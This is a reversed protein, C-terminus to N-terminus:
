PMAFCFQDPNIKSGVVGPMKATRELATLHRHAVLHLVVLVSPLLVTVM